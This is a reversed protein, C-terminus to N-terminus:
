DQVPGQPLQGANDALTVVDADVVLFGVGDQWAPPADGSGGYENQWAWDVYRKGANPGNQVTGRITRVGRGAVREAYYRRAATVADPIEHIVGRNEGAKV